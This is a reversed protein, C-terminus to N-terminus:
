LANHGGISQTQVSKELSSKPEGLKVSMPGSVREKVRCLM